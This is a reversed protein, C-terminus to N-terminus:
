PLVYVVEARVQTCPYNRYTLCKCDGDIDLLMFYSTCLRASHAFSHLYFFFTEVDIMYLLLLVPRREGGSGAHSETMKMKRASPCPLFKTSHRFPIQCRVM